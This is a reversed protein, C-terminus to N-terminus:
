DVDKAPSVRKHLDAALPEWEGESSDEATADTLNEQRKDADDDQRRVTPTIVVRTPAKKALTINLAGDAHTCKASDPDLQRPLMIKVDTCYVESGKTTEGKVILTNEVFEVVVDSPSVGPAAVIILVGDKTSEIRSTSLDLRRKTSQEKKEAALADRVTSSASGGSADCGCPNCGCPGSGSRGKRVSGSQHIKDFCTKWCAGESDSPQYPSNSYLADLGTALLSMTGFIIPQTFCPSCAGRHRPAYAFSPHMPHVFAVVM